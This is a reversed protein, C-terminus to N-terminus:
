NNIQLDTVSYSSKLYSVEITLQISFKLHNTSTRNTLTSNLTIHTQANNFILSLHWDCSPTKPRKVGIATCKLLLPHVGASKCADGVFHCSYPSLQLNQGKGGMVLCVQQVPTATSECFAEVLRLVYLCTLM